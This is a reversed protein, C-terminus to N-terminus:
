RSKKGIGFYLATANGHKDVAVVRYITKKKLTVKKKSKIKKGNVTVYRIGSADSFKLTVPRKYVRGNKAGKIKPGKADVQFEVTTSNNNADILTITHRGSKQISVKDTTQRIGDLILAKLSVDDKGTIMGIGCTGNQKVGSITPPTTDSSIPNGATAAILKGDAPIIELDWSVTNGAASGNSEVVAAPLTVSVDLQMGLSKNYAAVSDYGLKKITANSGGDMMETFLSLEGKPNIKGVFGSADLAISSFPPDSMDSYAKPRKSDKKLGERYSAGKTLFDTLANYDPFTFNRSYTYYEKGNINETAKQFDGSGLIGEELMSIDEDVSLSTYNYMSKEFMYKMSYSCSGDPQFGISVHEGMCGTLTGAVLVLVLIASLCHRKKKVPNM